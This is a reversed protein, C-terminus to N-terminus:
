FAELFPDSAPAYLLVLSRAAADKLARAVYDAMEMLDEYLTPDHEVLIVTHGAEELVTLLQFATFARRVELNRFKRDLGNLIRSYNGCIYLLKFRQFELHSSLAGALMSEPAILLNFTGGKLSVAPHLELDM